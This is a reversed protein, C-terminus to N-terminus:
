EDEDLYAGWGTEAMYERIAEDDYEVPLLEPELHDLGSGLPESMEVLGLLWDRAITLLEPDNTWMGMELSSRSSTTFNASGVCLKHPRVGMVDATYGSLHEDHWWLEGVLM